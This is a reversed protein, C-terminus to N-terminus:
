FNVELSAEYTRPAGFWATDGGNAGVINSGDAISAYYFTNTVNVVQFRATVRHGMVLTSYRTGLDLTAYPEAFTNNTNTAARSTEFHVAGTLAVGNWFAPHYDALLDGKWHPVGIVLLGDTQPNGTNLLRADIYTVGGLLSLDPTIAGQGFLEAGWNRQTGVVSFINTTANTEALPREMRFGDLTIIFNPNVAYKAGAEYMTDHYPAMFANANVASAPAQDGEETSNAYTAYLTLNEIPKYILSVTPSLAGNAGTASTEMGRSNFSEGKLFSTSLVGQLAWQQNFHLTDGLIISQQFLSGSQYQGGTFPTPKTPLITPFFLNGTGLTTQISNRYSFQGNVFGNTGFSLDNRMGFLDVHGNLYASNSVINFRPVANFNKTVTYSGSNNTLQDTIGYLGRNANEYLGGIDLTWGNDFTHKLKALGTDTTLNAGAGPQGLGATTPNPASPLITNKGTFYNIEGPLGTIDTAYHGYYGSILTQNDLRYDLYVSGLTRSVDSYDVYSTGGGHVVNVRYGLRQDPGTRGGADIQETFLSQSDFSQIYRFFPVDTPEKLIYNFVGSPSEPGYLAGALGNLVQIGALNEAPIATTGIVNLGDLRTNSVISSQFGRSQPRSVELGQQDRIEVSPLYRLTDNVTQVQQNLILTDPIFNVSQPTDLMPQKGLPGLDVPPPQYPAMAANALGTDAGQVNIAPLTAAAAPAPASAQQATAPFSLATLFGTATGLSLFARHHTKSSM